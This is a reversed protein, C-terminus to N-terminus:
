SKQVRRPQSGKTGVHWRRHLLPDPYVYNVKLFKLVFTHQDIKHSLVDEDNDTNFVYKSGVIM